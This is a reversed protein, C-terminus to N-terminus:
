ADYIGKKIELLEKVLSKKINEPLDSNIIGDLYEKIDMEGDEFMKRMNPGISMQINKIDIGGSLKVLENPTHGRNIGMRTNNILTQLCYVLENLEDSNNFDLGWLNLRKMIYEIENADKILCLTKIDDFIVEAIEEADNGKRKALIKVFKEYIKSNNAKWHKFDSCSLFSEYTKPIYFPKDSQQPIIYDMEEESFGWSCILYCNRRTTSWIEYDKTYKGNRKKLDAIFDTKKSNPFYNKLIYFADDSDIVGYLNICGMIFERYQKATFKNREINKNVKEM